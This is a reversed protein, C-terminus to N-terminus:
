LWNPHSLYWKVVNTLSKELDSPYSFGMNSLKSGDLAYRFDNGPRQSYFDVMEYSLPKRVVKAIFQALALNDIEKEGVINYKDGINNNKTLFLLAKLVNRAHIYSRIGAKTKIKNAHIAVSEGKLTKSIVMPIFKEPHQREGFVNMTMTTILPLKYTNCYSLGLEIAGAKSASYPNGSNYRDWEKYAVGESAPGFVEDTSFNIFLKLENVTRAFNLINCTGVVNDMVFSMPEEISRDVHSSAAVHWIYDVQGIDQKVYNNLESKLDWWVFKVRKKEKEWCGADTLRAPTGSTDLRDLIVIEWDTEKLLGEVFHSGIFGMGGTM